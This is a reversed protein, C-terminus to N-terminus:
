TGGKYLVYNFLDLITGNQRDINATMERTTGRYYGISRVTTTPGAVQTNGNNQSYGFVIGDGNDAINGVKSVPHLTMEVITKSTINMRTKLDDIKYIDETGPAPGAQYSNRINPCNEDRFLATYTDKGSAADAKAVRLKVELAHPYTSSNCPQLWRWYLALNDQNKPIITFTKSEDKIIKYPSNSDSAYSSNQLDKEDIKGNGITGDSNIPYLDQGFYKQQYFVQLDYVPNTNNALYGIPQGYNWLNDPNSPDDYDKDNGRSRPYNLQDWNLYNRFASVPTRKLPDTVPTIIKYPVEVNKDFRYRLLGEEVGSEAAYFAVLGNDYARTINAQRIALAGVGVIAAAFIACLMIATILATGKKTKNHRRSM